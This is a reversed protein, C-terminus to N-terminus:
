GHTGRIRMAARVPTTSAAKRGSRLLGGSLVVLLAGAPICVSTHTVNKAWPVVFDYTPQSEPSQEVVVDTKESLLVPTYYVNALLALAEAISILTNSM